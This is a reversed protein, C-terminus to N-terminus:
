PVAPLPLSMIIATTTLRTSRAVLVFIIFIRIGSSQSHLSIALSCPKSSNKSSRSSPSMPESERFDLMRPLSSTMQRVCLPQMGQIKRSSMLEGADTMRDQEQLTDLLAAKSVLSGIVDADLRRSFSGYSRARFKSLTAHVRGGM